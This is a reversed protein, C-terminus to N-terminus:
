AVSGFRQAHADNVMEEVTEESLPPDDPDGAILEEAARNLQEDVSEPIRPNDNGDTMFREKEM